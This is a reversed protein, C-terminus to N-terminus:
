PQFARLISQGHADVERGYHQWTAIWERYSTAAFSVTAGSVQESFSAIEARHREREAASIPRGQLTQPEAFLYVLAPTQRSKRAQTVLGFAHKVLQTADLNRYQVEGSRLHDRMREFPGMADGWVPRDYAESLSVKKEDRFPEYRKSEVGILRSDTKVVADLWPHTGGSWPFRASYEIDVKRAPYGADVGPFTPLLGPQNHFWGFCNAALAASSEPSNLKGSEIENGGAQRFRDLVYERPVGPLFELDLENM